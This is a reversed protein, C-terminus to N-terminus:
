NKRPGSSGGSKGIVAMGGVMNGEPVKPAQYGQPIDSPLTPNGGGGGAVAMQGQMDKIGSFPNGGGSGHPASSGGAGPTSPASSGGQKGSLASENKLTM